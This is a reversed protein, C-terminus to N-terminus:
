SQKLATDIEFDHDPFAEGTICTFCGNGVLASGIVWIDNGCSCKVGNKLAALASNLKERLDKEDELPNIKLHKKVYNEFTIPQFGSKELNIEDKKLIKKNAQM